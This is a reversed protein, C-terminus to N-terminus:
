AAIALVERLSDNPNTQLVFHSGELKKLNINTYAKKFVEAASASVLRDDNAQFYSSPISSASEIHNLNSIQKIRFELL